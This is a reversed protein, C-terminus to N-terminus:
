HYLTNVALERGQSRASCGCTVRVCFVDFSRGILERFKMVFGSGRQRLALVAMLDKRQASENGTRLSEHLQEEIPRYLGGPVAGLQEVAIRKLEDVLRLPDIASQGAMEPHQVSMTLRRRRAGHWPVLARYGLMITASPGNGVMQTSIHHGDCEVRFGTTFAMMVHRFSRRETGERCSASGAGSSAVSNRM